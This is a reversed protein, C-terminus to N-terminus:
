SALLAPRFRVRLAMLGVGASSAKGLPRATTAYVLGASARKMGAGVVGVTLRALVSLKRSADTVKAVSFPDTATRCCDGCDVGLASQRSVAWNRGKAPYSHLASKSPRIQALSHGNQQRSRGILGRVTCPQERGIGTM